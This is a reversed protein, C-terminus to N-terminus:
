RVQFVRQKRIEGARKDPLKGRTVGGHPAMAHPSMPFTCFDLRATGCAQPMGDVGIDLGRKAPAAPQFIMVYLLRELLGMALHVDEGIGLAGGGSVRVAEGSM